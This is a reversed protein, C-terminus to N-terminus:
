GLTKLDIQPEGYQKPLMLRAIKTEKMLNIVNESITANKEAELAEQEALKGIREAGELLQEVTVDKQNLVHNVM